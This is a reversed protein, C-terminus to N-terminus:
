PACRPPEQARIEEILEAEPRLGLLGSIKRRSGSVLAFAGRALPMMAPSSLWESWERYEVLAWLCILWAKTGRYVGGEDDVVVLEEATGSFALGPFRANAEPGGAPLFDMEVFKPQYILWWRCKVCFGCEADYLVTLKKM